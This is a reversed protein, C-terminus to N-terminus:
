QIRPDTALKENSFYNITKRIIEKPQRQNTAPDENSSYNNMKKHDTLTIKQGSRALADFGHDKHNDTCECGVYACGEGCSNLFRHVRLGSNLTLTSPAVRRRRIKFAKM